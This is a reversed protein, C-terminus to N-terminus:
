DRQATGFLIKCCRTHFLEAQFGNWKQRHYSLEKITLISQDGSIDGGQINELGYLSSTYKAVDSLLIM